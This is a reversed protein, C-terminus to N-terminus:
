PEPGRPPAEPARLRPGREGQPRGLRPAPPPRQEEDQLLRSYRERAQRLTERERRDSCPREEGGRVPGGQSRRPPERGPRPHRHPADQARPLHEGRVRGEGPGAPFARREQGRTGRFARRGEHVRGRLPPLHGHVPLTDPLFPGHAHLFLQVSQLSFELYREPGRRRHRRFRGTHNERRHPSRARGPDLDQPSRFHFFHRPVHLLDHPTGRLAHAPALGRRFLDHGRRPFLRHDEPSERGSFTRPLFAAHVSLRSLHHGPGAPQPRELLHPNPFLRERSALEIRGRPLQHVLSPQFGRFVPEVTRKAAPLFPPRPLRFHSFPREPLLGGPDLLRATATRDRAGPRTGPFRTAGRVALRFQFGPPRPRPYGRCSLADRAPSLAQRKGRGGDNGDNGVAAPAQRKRLAPLGLRHEHDPDFSTEGVQPAAGEPPLDRLRRLRNGRGRRPLRELLFAAQSLRDKGPLRSPLGFPQSLAELLIGM